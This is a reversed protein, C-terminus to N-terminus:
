FGWSENKQEVNWTHKSKEDRVKSSSLSKITELVIHLCLFDIELFKTTRQWMSGGVKFEWLLMVTYIEM